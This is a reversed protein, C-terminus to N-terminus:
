FRAGLFLAGGGPLPTGSLVVAAHAPGASGTAPSASDRTRALFLVTAALVGVAGVAFSVDSIIADHHAITESNQLQTYGYTDTTAIGTAPRTSLAKVGFASGVALGGVGIVAVTATLWDFRGYHKEPPLPPPPPLAPPPTAPEAPKEVEKRAGQLRKLYTDAKAREQPDLDMQEYRQFYRLADDIDGLKEHVVGLNFVLDKGSPDFKLATELETIAEHYSGQQYLEHARTAHQHAAATAESTARGASRGSERGSDGDTGTKPPDAAFAFGPNLTASTTFTTVTTLVVTCALRAARRRRCASLM